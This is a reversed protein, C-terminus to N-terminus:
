APELDLTFATIEVEMETVGTSAERRSDGWVAHITERGVQAPAEDAGKREGM